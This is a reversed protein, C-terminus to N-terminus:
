WFTKESNINMKTSGILPIFYNECVLDEFSDIAIYQSLTSEFVAQSQETELM